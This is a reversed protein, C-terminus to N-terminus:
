APTFSWRMELPDCDEHIFCEAVRRRNRGHQPRRKGAISPVDDKHEVLSPVTAVVDVGLAQVCRGVIEDDAGFREPWTQRDVYELAPAILKVPWVLAVVPVWAARPLVTLTRDEYCAKRIERASTAPVGAVFLAVLNDPAAEVVSRVTELFSVCVTADDQIVLRHTTARKPTQELATRYTRWPCAFSDPEPDFVLNCHGIKWSLREAMDARKEHTQIAVSLRM